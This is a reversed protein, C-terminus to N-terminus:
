YNSSHEDLDNIKYQLKKINYFFLKTNYIYKNINLYQVTQFEHKKRLNIFYNNILTNM